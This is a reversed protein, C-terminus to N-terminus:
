LGSLPVLNKRSKAEASRGALLRYFERTKEREEYAQIMAKIADSRSRFRGTKVMADIGELSAKPVRLQVQTQQAM